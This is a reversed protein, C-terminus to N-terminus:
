KIIEKIFPNKPNNLNGKLDAYDNYRPNIPKERSNIKDSIIKTDLFYNEIVETNESSISDKSDREDEELNINEDLDKIINDLNNDQINNSTIYKPDANQFSNSDKEEENDNHEELILLNRIDNTTNKKTGKKKNNKKGKKNWKKM